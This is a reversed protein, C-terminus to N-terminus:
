TLRVLRGDLRAKPAYAVRRHYACYPQDDDVVGGCFFFDPSRPDGVPWRCTHETLQLLTKRDPFPMTNDPLPEVYEVERPPKLANAGNVARFDAFGVNAVVRSPRYTSREAKSSPAPKPPRAKRVRGSLNLRHIKGIVGNRTVGGLEKAIDGASLGDRWLTKLLEVRADTWSSEGIYVM